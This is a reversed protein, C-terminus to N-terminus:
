GFVVVLQRTRALVTKGDQALLVGYEEAYGDQAFPTHAEFHYWDSASAGPPLPRLFHVTWDITAAAVPKEMAVVAAPPWADLLATLMVADPGVDERLRIWGGLRAPQQGAYPFGGCAFRYVYHQAFVPFQPGHPTVVAQALPVAVPAVADEIAMTSARDRAFSASATTVIQGAQRITATLQTVWAGERAVEVSLVAPGVAAPAAFHVTLSRLWRAPENIRRQMGDVIAAALLGGFAGRGQLWDEPISGLSTGDAQPEWRTLAEFRTM